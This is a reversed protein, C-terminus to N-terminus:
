LPAEAPRFLAADDARRKRMRENCVSVSDVAAAIRAALREATMEAVAARAFAARAAIKPGGIVIERVARALEGLDPEFWQSGARAVHSRSECVRGPLLRANQETCFDAQGGVASVILPIGAAMAEAAPLNFGEGRTPLVMADANCYLDLMADRSIDAEVLRIAPLNPVAARLECIQDATRNHPNRFTKITLEVPDDATFEMAFARLLLDVGKRPFASSVHLFRTIGQGPRRELEFFPVLDPALGVVHVPVELGSNLLAEAVFRTPALVADFGQNLAAITEDPVSSEEWFFFSLCVDGRRRPVHLPYHQSITVEKGHRWRPLALPWIRGRQEHPVGLWARRKEEPPLELRVRGPNVQALALALDRNVAALSYSGGVHGVIRYFPLSGNRM